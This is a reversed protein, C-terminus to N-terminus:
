RNPAELPRPPTDAALGHRLAFAGAQARSPVGLKDLISAVHWKVTGRGISLTEAIAQNSHGAAILRLVDLERPTLGLRNVAARAAAVATPGPPPQEALAEAIVRELPQTRGAEWAANFREESLQWRAAAVEREHEPLYFPSIPLGLRERLEAAAGFLRAAREPRGTLGANAALNELSAPASWLDHTAWRIGLSEQEMREATAYDRQKYALYALGHLARAVGVRQGITRFLELAEQCQRTSRALDATNGPRDVTGLDGLTAWQCLTWGLRGRLGLARFREAAAAFDATAAQEDRMFQAATGRLDLACATEAEDGSRRALAMGEDALAIARPYDGLAIAMRSLVVLARARVPPPVGAADALLPGIWRDGEREHGAIWWLPELASALRLAPETARRDAL